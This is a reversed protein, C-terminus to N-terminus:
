SWRAAFSRQWEAVYDLPPGTRIEEKEYAGDNPGRFMEDSDSDENKFEYEKYSGDM